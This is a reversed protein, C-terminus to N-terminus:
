HVPAPAVEHVAGLSRLQPSLARVILVVAITGIGGAVIAPATGMLQATLGSEFAGLENSCGIFLFNVSSVRGRMQDPTVFQVLTQRIVVNLNDFVGTLVLMAMSLWYNRSLGFVIIAAGFGALALFLVRGARRHPARHATFLAMTVAGLSPAARLWGFGVPGTHLIDKAVVPLLATAGGLLVAFLDLSAAALLLKTRFMFRLGAGLDRLTMAKRPMAAQVPRLLSFCVISAATCGAATFFVATAGGSVAILAGASAPGAIQVLEFISSNWTAANGWAHRPIVTPLLAGMSPMSFSRAVGLLGLLLYTLWVPGLSWSLAGLGLSCMLFLAQSALIIKKRNFHDALHGSPVALLLIPAIQVLGVYALAMKSGLREYLQWGVAATQMQSGIMFVARGALFHRYSRVRLAAYPDHAGARGDAPLIPPPAPM